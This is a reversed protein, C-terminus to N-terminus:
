NPLDGKKPPGFLNIVRATRPANGGEYETDRDDCDDVPCNACDHEAAARVESESIGLAGMLGNFREHEEEVQQFVDLFVAEWEVLHTWHDADYKDQCQLLWTEASSKAMEEVTLGAMRGSMYLPVLKQAAEPAAKITALAAENLAKQLKDTKDSV